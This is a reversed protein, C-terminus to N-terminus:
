TIFNKYYKTEITNLQFICLNKLTYINKYYFNIDNLLNVDLTNSHFQNYSNIHFQYKMDCKKIEMIAHSNHKFYAKNIFIGYFKNKSIPKCLYDWEEIIHYTNGIVLNDIYVRM